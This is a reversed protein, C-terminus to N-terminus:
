LGCRPETKCSRLANQIAAVESVSSVYGRPTLLPTIVGVMTLLFFRAWEEAGEHGEERGQTIQPELCQYAHLCFGLFYLPTLHRASLVRWFPTSAM